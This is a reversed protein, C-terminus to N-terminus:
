NWWFMMAMVNLHQNWWLIIVFKDKYLKVEGWKKFWKYDMALEGNRGGWYGELCTLM